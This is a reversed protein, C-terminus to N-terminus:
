SGETQATLLRNAEQTLQGGAKGQKERTLLELERAKHLIARIASESYGLREATLRVPAPSGLHKVYEAAVAAYQVRPRKRKGPRPSERFGKTLSRTHASIGSSRAIMEDLERYVRGLPISRLAESTVEAPRQDPSPNVLQLNWLRRSGEWSDFHLFGQLQRHKPVRVKV